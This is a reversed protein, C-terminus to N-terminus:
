HAQPIQTSERSAALDIVFTVVEVEASGPSQDLLEFFIVNSDLHERLAEMPDGGKLQSVEQAAAVQDRVVDDRCRVAGHNDFTLLVHSCPDAFAGGEGLLPKMCVPCLFSPSGCAQDRGTFPHPKGLEYVIQVGM